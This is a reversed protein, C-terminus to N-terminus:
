RPAAGPTEGAAHNVNAVLDKWTGALGRVQAPQREPEDSGYARVVRTVEAAVANLQDAMVNLTLKLEEVEGQADVTVKRTFNGNALATVQLALDRFQATLNGALSDVGSTMEHWAGSSEPAQIRAGFKGECGIDRTVRAIEASCVGLREAIGNVAAAIEAEVGDGPGALRVSADGDRIAQLAALLDSRDLTGGAPHQQSM